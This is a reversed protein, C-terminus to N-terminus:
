VPLEKNICAEGTIGCRTCFLTFYVKDEEIMRRQSVPLTKGKYYPGHLVVLAHGIGTKECVNVLELGPSKIASIKSQKM